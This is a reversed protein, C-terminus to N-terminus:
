RNAPPKWAPLSQLEIVAVTSTHTDTDTAIVVTAPKKIEAAAKIEQTALTQTAPTAPSAFFAKFISVGLQTSGMAYRASSEQEVAPEINPPLSMTLREELFDKFIITIFRVKM